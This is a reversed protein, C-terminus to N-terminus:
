VDSRPRPPWSGLAFRPGPRPRRLPRPPDSPRDLWGPDPEGQVLHRLGALRNGGPLGPLRAIQAAVDPGALDAWGVVAAVLNGGDALALFEETEATDALVQVLVSASIGEAACVDAFDDLGFRRRLAPLDALWEHQRCCPSWVHHHADVIM